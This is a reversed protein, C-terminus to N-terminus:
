GFSAETPMSPQIPYLAWGFGPAPVCPHLLSVDLSITSPSGPPTLQLTTHKSDGCHGTIGGDTTTALSVPAYATAGPPVEVAGAPLGAATANPLAEAGRPGGSLSATPYGDLVCLGSSTNTLAVAFRGLSGTDLPQRVGSWTCASASLTPTPSATPRATHSAAPAASCAALVVAGALIMALAAPRSIRPSMPEAPDDV